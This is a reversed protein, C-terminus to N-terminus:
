FTVPVTAHCLEAMPGGLFPPFFNTQRGWWPFSVIIGACGWGAKLNNSDNKANKYGKQPDPSTKCHDQAMPSRGTKVHAGVSGYPDMESWIEYKKPWCM